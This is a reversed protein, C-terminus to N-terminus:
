AQSLLFFSNGLSVRKLIPATTRLSPLIGEGPKQKPGAALYLREVECATSKM